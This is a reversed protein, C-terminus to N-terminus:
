SRLTTLCYADANDMLGSLHCNYCLFLISILIYVLSVTMGVTLGKDILGYEYFYFLFGGFPCLLIYLYLFM